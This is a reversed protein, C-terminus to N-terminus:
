PPTGWIHSRGFGLRQRSLTLIEIQSPSGFTTMLRRFLCKGLLSAYLLEGPDSWGNGLYQRNTGTKRRALILWWTSLSPVQKVMHSYIALPHMGMFPVGWDSQSRDKTRAFFPRSWCALISGERNPEFNVHSMHCSIPGTYIASKSLLVKRQRSKLQLM